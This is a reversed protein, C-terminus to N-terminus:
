HKKKEFLLLKFVDFFIPRNQIIVFGNQMFVDIFDKVRYNYEFININKRLIESIYALTKGWFSDHNPQILLVFKNSIRMMHRAYPEFNLFHELMGDSSILDYSEEVEELKQLAIPLGKQRCFNVANQSVDIGVCKFGMNYYIELIHGLGCGVEIISDIDLNILAKEIANKKARFMQIALPTLKETENFRKWRKDWVGYLKKDSHMITNIIKKQM